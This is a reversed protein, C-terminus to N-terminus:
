RQLTNAIMTLRNRLSERKQKLQTEIGRAEKIIEDFEHIYSSDVATRESLIQAFKGLFFNIEKNMENLIKELAEVNVNDTLVSDQKAPSPCWSSESDEVELAESLERRGRLLCISLEELEVLDRLTARNCM